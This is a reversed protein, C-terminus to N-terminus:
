PQSWGLQEIMQTLNVEGMSNWVVFIKGSATHFARAGYPGCSPFGDHGYKVSVITENLLADFSVHRRIWRKEKKTGSEM